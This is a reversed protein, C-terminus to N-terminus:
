VTHPYVQVRFVEGQYQFPSNTHYFGVNSYKRMLDKGLAELDHIVPNHTYIKFSVCGKHKDRYMVKLGTIAEFEKKGLWAPILVKEM